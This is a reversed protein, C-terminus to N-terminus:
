RSLTGEVGRAIFTKLTGINTALDEDDVVGESLSKMRGSISFINVMAGVLCVYARIVEDKDTTPYLRAIEEIFIRSSPDFYRSLM